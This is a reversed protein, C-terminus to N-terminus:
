KKKVARVITKLNKRHKEIQKIAYKTGFYSGIATGMGNFIGNIITIFPDM